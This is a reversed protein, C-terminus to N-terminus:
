LTGRSRLYNNGRNLFMEHQQQLSGSKNKVKKEVSKFLEITLDVNLHCSHQHRCDCLFGDRSFLVFVLCSTSGLHQVM